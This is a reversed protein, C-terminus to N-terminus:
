SPNRQPEKGAYRTRPLTLVASVVNTKRFGPKTDILNLLTSVMLGAGILLIVALAVECAVLVDSLRRTARRVSTGRGSGQLTESVNLRITRIAPVARFLDPLFPFAPLSVWCASISVSRIPAPVRDPVAPATTRCGWGAVLVGAVRPTFPLFGEILSPRLLAPLWAGFASRIAFERTSEASRALVSQSM